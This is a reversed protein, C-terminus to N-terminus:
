KQCVLEGSIKQYINDLSKMIIIDSRSDVTYIKLFNDLDISPYDLDFIYCTRDYLTFNEIVSSIYMIPHGVESPTTGTVFYYSEIDYNYYDKPHRQIFVNKRVHHKMFRSVEEQMELTPQTYIVIPFHRKTKKEFFTKKYENLVLPGRYGHKELLARYRSSYIILNNKVEPLGIYGVHNSHIVGHQVEYTNLRNLFKEGMPIVSGTYYKQSKRSLILSLFQLFLADGLANKIYKDLKINFEINKLYGMSEKYKKRFIRYAVKRSIFRLLNFFESGIYDTEKYVREQEHNLFLLKNASKERKYIELLETREMLFFVKDYKKQTFLFKMTKLFSKMMDVSKPRMIKRETMMGGALLPERCHIWLPYGFLTLEWVDYEHEFVILEEFSLKQV